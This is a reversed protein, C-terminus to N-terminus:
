YVILHITSDMFNGDEYAIVEVQNNTLVNAHLCEQDQNGCASVVIQNPFQTGSTASYIRDDVEFGFDFIYDGGGTNDFTFGCPPTTAATGSLLSNFCSIIKGPFDIFPSYHLMAKVMGGATRQQEVNGRSDILVRNANLDGLLIRNGPSVRMGSDGPVAGPIFCGPAGAQFIEATGSGTYTLISNCDSTGSSGFKGIPAHDGATTSFVDLSAQPGSTGVGLSGTVTVTGIVGQNGTFTNVSNLQPVKTTDLNLTVNGSKGGGTLDTGATVGTVTGTGASSCAWTSGNWQLVQGSACTTLMSVTVNGNTGGGTLGAGATVGSIPGPPGQPGTLVIDLEAPHSTTTAEKSDLTFSVTGDPVLALGDNATGNLWDVVAATVDVLVYQEKDSTSIPIASAIASDLTPSNDATISGETWSSAVLDVNFSGATPVTDVFIKLTGKAVMSGTVSPPIASLDFRIFATAGSSEVALSKASGFNRTPSSTLTYADDSPTIQSLASTVCLSLSLSILLTLPRKM